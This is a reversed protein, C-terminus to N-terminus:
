FQLIITHKKNVLKPINQVVIKELFTKQRKEKGKLVGTACINFRRNNEVPRLPEM